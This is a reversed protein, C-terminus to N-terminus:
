NVHSGSAVVPPHFTRARRPAAERESARSVASSAARVDDEQRCGFRREVEQWDVNAFFADIYKGRETPRYDVMFAHVWVDMALLPRFGAPHCHEHLTIRHNSLRGTEPIKTSSQGASM